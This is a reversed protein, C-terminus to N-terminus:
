IEYDDEHDFNEMLWTEIRERDAASLAIRPADSMHEDAKRRADLIEVEAGYGPDCYEPPGYTQAPCGPSFSFEVCVDTEEDDTLTFDQFYTRTM